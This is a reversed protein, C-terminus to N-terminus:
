KKSGGSANPPWTRGSWRALPSPADYTAPTCRATRAPWRQPWGASRRSDGDATGLSCGRPCSRKSRKTATAASGIPSSAPDSVSSRPSLSTTGSARSTTTPRSCRRCSALASGSTCSAAVDRSAWTTRVRAARCGASGDRLAALPGFSDTSSAEFWCNMGASIGALITGQAAAQRLLDPLGHVRWIALLNATSGGGVYVVDQDLVTAPDVFPYDWNGFLSLVLTDARGDFAREFQQAYGPYDGSATPVFCVKPRSTGTLELLYDDIPSPGDNGQSFGGGGLTVITGHFAPRAPPM